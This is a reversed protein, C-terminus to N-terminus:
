PTAPAVDTTGAQVNLDYTLTSGASLGHWWSGPYEEHNVLRQVGDIYTNSRPDDKGNICLFLDPGNGIVPDTGSIACYNAEIQAFIVTGALVTCTMPITGSFDMAIEFNCIEPIQSTFELNPLAYVPQDLTPVPGTYIVNGALTVSIEAPTSGFGQGFIKVTRTIM